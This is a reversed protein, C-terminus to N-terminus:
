PMKAGFWRLAFQYCFDEAVPYARRCGPFQGHKDPRLGGKRLDIRADSPGALYYGSQVLIEVTPNEKSPWPIYTQVTGKGFTKEGAILTTTPSLQKVAGAFLEATSATNGNVLIVTPIGAFSGRTQSYMSYRGLDSTEVYAVEVGKKQAFLVAANAGAIVEGGNNDRLDLILRKPPNQFDLAVALDRGTNRTFKSIRAYRVNRDVDWSVITGIRVVTSAVGWDPADATPELLDVPADRYGSRVIHTTQEVCGADQMARNAEYVIKRPANAVVAEVVGSILEYCKKTDPIVRYRALTEVVFNFQAHAPGAPFSLAVLM